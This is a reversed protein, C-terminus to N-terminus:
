NEGFVQKLLDTSRAVPDERIAAEERALYLFIGDLAGDVVYGDLDADVQPAMPMANYRNMTNEYLQAAGVEDLSDAVIPRMADSLPGAMKSRLYRTAADDPGNYIGMVDDITLERIANIFLARAQPTAEEAARNLRTELDDLMGAMGFRDLSDRVVGLEAPLPIHVLSDANFGDTTGLTDVVRDTGVELAQKLGAAITENSLAAASIGAASETTTEDKKKGIGLLDELWGAKAMATTLLLGLTLPIALIPRM